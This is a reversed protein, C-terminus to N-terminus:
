VFDCPLVNESDLLTFIKAATNTLQRTCGLEGIKKLRERNLYVVHSHIGNTHFKLEM